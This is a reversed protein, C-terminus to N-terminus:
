VLLTTLGICALLLEWAIHQRSFAGDEVVVTEAAYMAAATATVTNTSYGLGGNGAGAGFGGIGNGNGGAYQTQGSSDTLMIPNGQGGSGRNGATAYGLGTPVVEVGGKGEQLGAAGNAQYTLILSWERPIQIKIISILHPHPHSGRNYESDRTSPSSLSRQVRHLTLPQCM